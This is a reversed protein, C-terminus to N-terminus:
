KKLDSLIMYVKRVLFTDEQLSNPSYHRTYYNDHLFCNSLFVTKIPDTNHNTPPKSIVRNNEQM